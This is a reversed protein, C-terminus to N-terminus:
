VADDLNEGVDEVSLIELQEDDIIDHYNGERLARLVTAYSPREVARDDFPLTAHLRYRMRVIAEVDGCYEAKTTAQKKAKSTKKTKAKRKAAMFGEDIERAFFTVATTNSLGRRKMKKLAIKTFHEAPITKAEPWVEFRRPHHEQAPAVFVEVIMPEQPDDPWGSPWESSDLMRVYDLAVQMPTFDGEFEVGM